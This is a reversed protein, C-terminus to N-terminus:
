FEVIKWQGNEKAFTVLFTIATGDRMIEFRSQAFNERIYVPTLPGIQNMWGALAANGLSAFVTRFGNQRETMFYLLAAETNGTALNAKANTWASDPSPKPLLFKQIQNNGTDAIFIRDELLTGAAAVSLPNSLVIAGTSSWQFTYETTVRNPRKIAVIRNNGLDAIYIASSDASVNVPNQFQLPGTGEQGFADGITDSSGIVSIRNNGSDAVYINGDSSACIGKPANLQGIQNGQQGIEGEFVGASTFKQVRHNGTDSVYIHQGDPSVAVDYLQNFEGSAAGAVGDTRGIKGTTNFLPDFAFTSGDPKLRAVQNNGTLAVYVQGASDVDLGTPNLGIGTISRVTTGDAAFQIVKAAARALVYLSGDSTWKVDAPNAISTLSEQQPPSQIHITMRGPGQAFFGGVSSFSGATTVVTVVPFFDGALSYLRTVPNLNYAVLDVIGDGDFDYRVELIQGAVTASAQFTVSLPGFGSTSTAQLTVPDVPAPGQVLSITATGIHGFIDTAIATIRNAGSQLPVNRAEFTSGTVLAPVGNVLLSDIASAHVVQGHVDVRQTTFSSGSLPDTIAVEPILHLAYKRSLYAEVVAREGVGLARNYIMIEAVDGAFAGFAGSGIETPAFVQPRPSVLGARVLQGNLFITPRRAEYEFAGLVFGNGVTGSHVALPPMYSDGNEYISIGNTGLSMGAGANAGSTTAGFLYKQGSTGATGTTGETDIEHAATTKAVVFVTFNDTGPSLTAVLQDNQGDFRLVPRGNIANDIWVPQKASTAQSADNSVGSGDGWASVLNAGDKAVGSGADLWLRLGTDIPQRTLRLRIFRKGLSSMPTRDQIRVFETEGLDLTSFPETFAEGSYWNVLNHSVEVVYTLDTASKVRMFGLVLHDNVTEVTPLPSMAAVKPNGALGYEFLNRISDHDPDATLGSVLPDGNESPAFQLSKWQEFQLQALARVPACTVSIAVTLLLVKSFRQATNRM